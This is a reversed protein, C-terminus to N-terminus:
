LRSTAGRGDLLQLEGRPHSADLPSFFAEVAADTIKDLEDWGPQWKQKRDKDVLVARIGEYFDSYPQPRTAFRQALRYELYIADGITVDQPSFKNIARMAVKCSTPSCSRHLTELTKQAFASPDARLRNVIEEVTPASFCKDIVALNEDTFVAGSSPPQAGAGVDGVVAAVMEKAAERSVSQSCKTLLESRLQAIKASPVFHTALGARMCDWATLRTGTMGLFLGAPMGCALRSLLHTTGVDPFFGIAMEPMAFSMKETVVRFSGHMSVGVGGGMTIGDLLSVQCCGVRQYLTALRHVARYEEQFFEAALTGGAMSDERIAAVDGGACFAKGGAGEVLLCNLSGARGDVEDLANNLLRMMNLNLANLKSPRNLMLTAAAGHKFSAYLEAAAAM